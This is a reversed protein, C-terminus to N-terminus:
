DKIDSKHFFTFYIVCFTVLLLMVAVERSQNWGFYTEKLLFASILISLVKNLVLNVRTNLLNKKWILHLILWIAIPIVAVFTMRKLFFFSTDHDIPSFVLLYVFLTWGLYNPFPISVGKNNAHTTGDNIYEDHIGIRSYIEKWYDTELSKQFLCFNLFSNSTERKQFESKLPEQSDKQIRIAEVMFYKDNKDIKKLKEVVEDPYFHFFFSLLASDDENALRKMVNLNEDDDLNHQSVRYATCLKLAHDLDYIDYGQLCSYGLKKPPTLYQLTGLCDAYINVIENATSISM